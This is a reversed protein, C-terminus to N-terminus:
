SCIRISKDTITMHSLDQLAALTNLHPPFFREEEKEEKYPLREHKLM